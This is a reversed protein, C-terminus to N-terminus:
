QPSTGPSARRSWSHCGRRLTDARQLSASIATPTNHNLVYIFSPFPEDTQKVLFQILVHSHGHIGYLRLHVVTNISRRRLLSNIIEDPIFRSIHLMGNEQVFEADDNPGRSLMARVINGFTIAAIEAAHEPDDFNVDGCDFVTFRLSPQELMVARSLGHSLSLDPNPLGLINVGTLWTLNTVTDVIKRLRNMDDTDISALLEREFELLSICITDNSIVISDIDKM